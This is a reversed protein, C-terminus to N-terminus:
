RLLAIICRIFGIIGYQRGQLVMGIVGDRFLQHYKDLRQAIILSDIQRM